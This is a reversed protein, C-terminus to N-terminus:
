FPWAFFNYKFRFKLLNLYIKNFVIKLWFHAFVRVSYCLFEIVQIEAMGLKESQSFKLGQEPSLGMEVLMRPSAGARRFFCDQGSRTKAPLFPIYSKWWPDLHDRPAWHWCPQTWERVPLKYHSWQYRQTWMIPDFCYYLFQCFSSHINEVETLFSALHMVPCTITVAVNLQGIKGIGRGRWAKM